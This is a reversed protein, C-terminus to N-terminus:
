AIQLSGNVIGEEVLADLESDALKLLAAQCGFAELPSLCDEEILRKRLWPIWAKLLPTTYRPGSLERWLSEDSLAPLLGPAQAVALLHWANLGLKHKFTRYKGDFRETRYFERGDPFVPRFEAKVNAQLGAAIVKISNEPGAISVVFITNSKREFAFAACALTRNTDKGRVLLSGLM